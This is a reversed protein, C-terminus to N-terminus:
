CESCVNTQLLLEACTGSGKLGDILINKSSISINKSRANPPRPDFQNSSKKRKIKGYEHKTYTMDNANTAPVKRKRPKLWSCQMSTRSEGVASGAKLVNTSSEYLCELAHLLASLHVCSESTGVPCTCSVSVVERKETDIKCMVTYTQDKKMSPYVSGKYFINTNVKVMQVSQVHGSAFLNYGTKLARFNNTTGHRTVRDVLYDYIFSRTIRFGNELIYDLGTQWGTHPFNSSNTTVAPQFQQQEPPSAQNSEQFPQVDQHQLM